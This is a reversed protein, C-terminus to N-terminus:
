EHPSNISSHEGRSRPHAWPRPVCSASPETNGARAPILGGCSFREGLRVLTGRALPSSGGTQHSRGPNRLHEGRSRPHAWTAYNCTTPQATNGARAPILRTPRIAVTMPRPTGRALPSSGWHVLAKGGKVIHEGRSRPHARLPKVLPPAPLTNGARAPILGDWRCARPHCSRTGRALPSSGGAASSFVTLCAHEGRSRPHARRSSFREMM